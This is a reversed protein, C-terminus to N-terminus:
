HLTPPIFHGMDPESPYEVGFAIHVLKSSEAALRELCQQYMERTIEEFLCGRTMIAALVTLGVITEVEFNTEVISDCVAYQLEHHAALVGQIEDASFQAIWKHLVAEVQEYSVWLATVHEETAIVDPISEEAHRLWEVWDEENQIRDIGDLSLEFPQDTM